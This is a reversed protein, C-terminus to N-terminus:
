DATPGADAPPPRRTTARASRSARRTVAPIAPSTPVERPAERPAEAPIARAGIRGLRSAREVLAVGILRGEVLALSEASLAAESRKAHDREATLVVGDCAQAWVTAAASEGVPALTIVLVEYARGISAVLDRLRSADFAPLDVTGGPLVAIGAVTVALNPDDRGALWDSVGTRDTLGLLRTAAGDPGGGDILIARRGLRGIAATVNAAVTAATEASTADLVLISSSRGGAYGLILKSALLQYAQGSRSAAMAILDASGVRVAGLFTAGTARSLDERSRIADSLYEIFLVIVLTGILGALAALMVLISVQPAVPTSGATAAEIVQLQGEPRNIGRSALQILETSIANALTAADARSGSQVRITLIRTVDNATARVDPALEAATIPLGTEQIASTLLPVTTALQAYTQVLQGSARLTNADTNIPGVLLQARSEYTPPVQSAVIFGTLGAVWAAVLLTWWWRRVVVIYGSLEV